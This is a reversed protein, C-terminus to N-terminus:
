EDNRRIVFGAGDAPNHPGEPRREVVGTKDVLDQQHIVPGGVGRGGRRLFGTRLDHRRRLVKAVAQRETAANKGGAELVDHDAIRVARVWRGRDRFKM